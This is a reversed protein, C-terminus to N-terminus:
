ARRRRRADAAGSGALAALRRQLETGERLLDLHPVTMSKAPAERLALSLPGVARLGRRRGGPCGPGAGSRRARLRDRATPQGGAPRAGVPARQPRRRRPHLPDDGRGAGRCRGAPVGGVEAPRQGAAFRAPSWACRTTAPTPSIRYAIGLIQGPTLRPLVAESLDCDLYPLAAALDTLDRLVDWAHQDPLRGLGDLYGELSLSARAARQWAQEYGPLTTDDVAALEVDGFTSARPLQSLAQHLAQAPLHVADHLTLPRVEAFQPADAVAGVLERLEVLVTDRAAMAARPDALPSDPVVGDVLLETVAAALDDLSRAWGSM